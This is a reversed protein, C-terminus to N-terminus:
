KGRDPTLAADSPIRRDGAALIGLLDDVARELRENVVIHRYHFRAAMEEMANRLRREFVDASDTGRKQLRQRLIDMSPPMIFITVAEPYHKVLQAAGQVDIDLLLDHGQALMRSIFAASTGYYHDHVRAWEVWRGAAIGDEFAPEDIFFYDEGDVEEPRPPRTTYSISYCLDPRRKRLLTCLTSKGAGSPASLIFLRGRPRHDDEAHPADATRTVKPRDTSM